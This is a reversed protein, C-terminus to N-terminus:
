CLSEAELANQLCQHSTCARARLHNQSSSSLPPCCAPLIEIHRAVHTRLHSFGQMRRRPPWPTRIKRSICRQGTCHLSGQVGDSLAVLACDRLTRDSDSLIPAKPLPAQGFGHGVNPQPQCGAFPPRWALGSNSSFTWIITRVRLRLM